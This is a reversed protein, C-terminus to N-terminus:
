LRLEVYGSGVACRAAGVGYSRVRELFALPGLISYEYGNVKM